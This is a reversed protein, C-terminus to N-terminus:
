ISDEDIDFLPEEERLSEEEEITDCGNRSLCATALMGLSASRARRHVFVAEDEPADITRDGKLDLEWTPDVQPHPRNSNQLQKLTREDYSEARSRRPSTFAEPIVEEAPSARKLNQLASAAFALFPNKSSDLSRGLAAPNVLSHSPAAAAAAVESFQM